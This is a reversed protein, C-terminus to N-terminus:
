SLAAIFRKFTQLTATLEGTSQPLLKNLVFSAEKVKDEEIFTIIQYLQEFLPLDFTKNKVANTFYDLSDQMQKAKLTNSEISSIFQPTKQLFELVNSVKKPDYNVNLPQPPKNSMPPVPPQLKMPPPPPVLQKPAEPAKHTPPPPVVNNVVKTSTQYNKAENNPTMPTPPPPPLKVPAPPPPAVVSSKPPATHRIPNETLSNSHTPTHKPMEALEQPRSLTPQVPPPVFTPPKPINPVVPKVPKVPQQHSQQNSHELPQSQIQNSNIPSPGSPFIPPKPITTKQTQIPPVFKSQTNDEQLQGNQSFVQAGKKNELFPNSKKPITREPVVEKKKKKPFNFDIKKFDQPPAYFLRLVDARNSYILHQFLQIEENRKNGFIELLEYALHVHDTELLIKVLRILKESILKDDAVFNLKMKLLYLLEFAHVLKSVSETRELDVLTEGIFENIKNSLLLIYQVINKDMGASKVRQALTKYYEEREAQNKVNKVIFTLIDKWENVDYSDIITAFNNNTLPKVFSKLFDDESSFKDVLYQVFYDRQTKHSYAIMFAEFIRNAKIACDIAGEFNNILINKKIYSELGKNWNTNVEYAVQKLENQNPEEVFEHTRKVESRVSKEIEEEQQKGLDSFFDLAEDETIPAAQKNASRRPEAEKSPENYSFGTLKETNKIIMEPDIDLCKLKEECGKELNKILEVLYRDHNKNKILRNAFKTSDGKCDGFNNAFEDVAAVTSSEEKHGSSIKFGSVTKEQEGSISVLVGMGNAGGVAFSKPKLWSSANKMALQNLEAERTSHAIMQGDENVGFYLHDIATYKSYLTKFDPYNFTSYTDTDTFYETFNGQKDALLIANKNHPSWHISNVNKFVTNDLVKVPAKNNRLDWLQVGSDEHDFAVAIQTPINPNWAISVERKSIHEKGDSFRFISRKLKLDIIDITGNDQACALIHQVAKTKNWAISTIITEPNGAKSSNPCFIDPETFGKEFNVIFVDHGGTALLTPKSPNYEMCYFDGNQYLEFSAIVAEEEAPKDELSNQIIKGADLLVLSGDKLGGTIVGKSYEPYIDHWTLCNFSIGTEFKGISNFPHGHNLPDFRLVELGVFENEPFMSGHCLLFPDKTNDTWAFLGHTNSQFTAM